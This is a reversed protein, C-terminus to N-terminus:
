VNQVITRIREWIVPEDQITIWIKNPPKFTEIKFNMVVQTIDPVYYLFHLKTKSIVEAVISTDKLLIIKKPQCQYHIDDKWHTDLQIFLQICLAIQKKDTITKMFEDKEISYSLSAPVNEQICETMEQFLAKCKQENDYSQLLLQDMSQILSDKTQKIKFQLRSSDGICDRFKSMYSQIQTKFHNNQIMVHKSRIDARIMARLLHVASCFGYQGFHSNSVYIILQNNPNIEWDFESKGVIGSTNSLFIAYPIGTYTMDRYLKQIEENNVNQSYTKIEIMVTIGIDPMFMHCDSEYSKNSINKFEYSPFLPQITEITLDECYKGKRNSTGSLLSIGHISDDISNLKKLIPQFCVDGNLVPTCL